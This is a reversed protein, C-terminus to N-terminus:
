RTLRSELDARAANFSMGKPRAYRRVDAIDQSSLGTTDEVTDYTGGLRPMAGSGSFVPSPADATTVTPGAPATPIPPEPGGPIEGYDTDGLGGKFRANQYKDYVRRAWDKFEVTDLIELEAGKDYVADYQDPNQRRFQRWETVNAEETAKATKRQERTAKEDALKQEGLGLEGRRLGLKEQELAQAQEEGPTLVGENQQRLRETQQNTLLTQARTRPDMQELVQRLTMEGMRQRGQLRQASTARDGARRERRDEELSRGLNGFFAGLGSRFANAKAGM